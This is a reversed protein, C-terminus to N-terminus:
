RKVIFPLGASTPPLSAALDWGDKGFQNLASELAPFSQATGVKFEVARAAYSPVPNFSLRAAIVALSLAIITLTIRTYRDIKM